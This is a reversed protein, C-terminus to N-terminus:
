DREPTRNLSLRDRQINMFQELKEPSAQDRLQNALAQAQSKLFRKRIANLYDSMLRREEAEDVSDQAMARSSTIISPQDIQSALSAALSGFSDPKQRYKDLAQAMVKRLGPHSIIELLGDPGAEILERMLNENHLLLSLIFAEDRPAGKVSVLTYTESLEESVPSVQATVPSGPAPGGVTEIPRSAGPGNPTPAAGAPVPKPTAKALRAQIAQHIARRLWAMEVDLQRSMELLYLDMLQRNQMSKMAQAAEEVIQVKESPSGHYNQMWRRTLLLSFLEPSRGVEERLQDAGHAKVYDDPDMKEPLVFGKAMLGAELLIPLSREAGTIGAEDGDLLMKVNLTYRKLIKAHDATFATGLIAVVNKIGAAYLSIADMYGEVVIAEDQARIFKGTEHLGYLIRGKHFVPSDSSNVYKPLADGLTRGGFGVVDNTASFIPFMLRDRFLDFHSDDVRGGKKPKILGLTEAADLPVKRAKFHHVLGQWDDLAVGLRFKEVIEETLGRKVLYQRVPADAAQAKLQQHFFVAAARNVKLLLDKQDRSPAGPRAKQEENEPIPISARRALYEVAEPFSMGNFTQLFNYVNGGKKCGYCFYLQNDETVSFSPSKDSHDPFPCRGMLRHGSGKLETYQGIIEVINNADRVKDIFDQSFRMGLGDALPSRFFNLGDM